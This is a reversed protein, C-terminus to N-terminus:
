PENERHSPIMRKAFSKEEDKTLIFEAGYKFDPSDVPKNDTDVAELEGVFAQVDDPCGTIEVHVAIDVDGIRRWIIENM